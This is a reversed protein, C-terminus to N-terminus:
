QFKDDNNLQQQIHDLYQEYYMSNKKEIDQEDAYRLKLCISKISNM